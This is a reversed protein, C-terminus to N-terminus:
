KICDDKQQLAGVHCIHSSNSWIKELVLQPVMKGDAVGFYRDLFLHVYICVHKENQM